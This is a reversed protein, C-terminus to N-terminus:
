PAVVRVAGPLVEAELWTVSGIADGDVEFPVPADTEFRVKKAQAYELPEPTGEAEALDQPVERHGRGVVQPVSGAIIEGAFTAWERPRVASNVLLDLLGDDPKAAPFLQLPTQTGGVNGVMAM